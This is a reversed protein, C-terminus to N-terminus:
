VPRIQSLIKDAGRGLLVDGLERGMAEADATKGEIRDRLFSAGDLSSVMGTLTLRSNESVTGFAGIPIQCGGELKALFAREAQVAFATPPHNIERLLMGAETDSQRIEIGLAGQGVAPLFRECSLYEAIKNDLGLRCVGAAALIVAEYLGESLKRLRTDLNGRLDKTQFSPYLQHIQAIRRLSSTGILADSPLDNLKRGDATIVVDRPDKRETIAGIVLGTPLATPVDKMSHVALDITESLLAEELEKVFLGKGGVQALPVDLIKDGQTKIVRIETEMEPYHQKIQEAIHNSQWLALKSGRSGIIWKKKM